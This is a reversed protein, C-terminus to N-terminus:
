GQLVRGVMRDFRGAALDAENALIFLPDADNISLGMEANSDIRLVCHWRECETLLRARNAFWWDAERSLAVLQRRREMRARPLFGDLAEKTAFMAISEAHPHGERELVVSLRLDSENHDSAHGAVQGLSGELEALLAFFAEFRSDLVDLLGSKAWRALSLTPEWAVRVPALGVLYEDCLESEPPSVRRELATGIPFHFAHVQVPESAAETGQVFLSLLGDRPMGVPAIPLAALEIQAVFM